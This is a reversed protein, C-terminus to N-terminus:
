LQCSPVHRGQTRCDTPRMTRLQPLTQWLGGEQSLHNNQARHRASSSYEQEEWCLGQSIPAPSRMRSGTSRTGARPWQAPSGWRPLPPSEFGNGGHAGAGARPPTIARKIDRALGLCLSPQPWTPTPPLRSWSSAPATHESPAPGGRIQSLFSNQKNEYRHTYTCGRSLFM